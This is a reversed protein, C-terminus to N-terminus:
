SYLIDAISRARAMSLYPLIDSEKSIDNRLIDAIETDSMVNISKRIQKDDISNIEKLWNTFDEISNVAITIM